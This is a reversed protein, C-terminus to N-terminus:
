RQMLVVQINAIKRRTGRMKLKRPRMFTFGDHASANVVLTEKDLGKNEANKEASEIVSLIGKTANFYIKGRINEKEELMNKLFKKAKELPKGNIKRCVVSSSKRSIRMANGRARASKGPDADLAYGEM